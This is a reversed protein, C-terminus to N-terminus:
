YLKTLVANYAQYQYSVEADAVNTNITVRLTVDTGVYSRGGDQYHSVIPSIGTQIYTVHVDNPQFSGPAMLPGTGFTYWIELTWFGGSLSGVSPPVQLQFIKTSNLYFNLTLTNVPVRESLGSIRLLYTDGRTVNPCILDGFGVGILSFEENVPANIWNGNEPSTTEETQVFIGNIPPGAPGPLGNLGNQGNVGNQGPMGDRGDRGDRGNQGNQGSRGIIAVRGCSEDHHQTAGV